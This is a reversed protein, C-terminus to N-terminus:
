KCKHTISLRRDRVTPNAANAKFLSGLGTRVKAKGGVAKGYVLFSLHQNVYAGRM